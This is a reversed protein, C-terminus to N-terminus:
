PQHPARTEEAPPGALRPRTPSAATLPGKILQRLLWADRSGPQSATLATDPERALTRLVTALWSAFDPEHRVATALAGAAAFTHGAQPVPEGPLARVMAAAEAMEEALRDLTAAARDAEGATVDPLWQTVESLDALAQRVTGRLDDAPAAM